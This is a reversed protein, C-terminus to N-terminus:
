RPPKPRPSRTRRRRPRCAIQAIPTARSEEAFRAADARAETVISQAEQEASAAKSQHSAVPAVAEARLRKAENLEAAIVAARQDLLKAIMGPAGKWVLLLIVLLFGFAVWFETRACNGHDARGCPKPPMPM